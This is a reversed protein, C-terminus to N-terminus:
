NLAQKINVKLFLSMLFALMMLSFLWLFPAWCNIKIFLPLLMNGAVSGLRGFTMILLLVMTRMLTPFYVVTMSIVTSACIGMVTLYFASVLLMSLSSNTFYLGGVLFTSILLSIKLLHSAIVQISLLPFIVLYGILGIAAVIINDSYTEPEHHIDCEQNKEEKTFNLQTDHKLVACMSRDSYGKVELTHITAFINPMWLRVSNVCMIQCFHLLYVHIAVGLYPCSWMPKLQKLGEFFIFKARWCKRKVTEEEMREPVADILTKIPYSERSKRKNIAYIRQFSKLAKNYYGQAMLFKPSEPLFIHLLGSLFSPIASIAFFVQWTHFKMNGLKFYIHLPLLLYAILPLTVAGISIILGVFFMIYHRHKQGHFEALYSVVVAFPGCIILGDFFKFIMLQISNQSLASCLVFIGDVFGGIILVSRRGMTDSIFGWPIASLIM